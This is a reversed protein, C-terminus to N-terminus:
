LWGFGRAMVGALGLAVFIIAGFLVRFDQKTDSRLERIDAKMESLERLIHECTSELKAVRAEMGGDHPPGGGSVLPPGAAENTFGIGRKAVNSM